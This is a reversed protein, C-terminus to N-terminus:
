ADFNGCLVGRSNLLVEVSQEQVLLETSIKLYHVASICLQYDKILKSDYSSFCPLSDFCHLPEKKTELIRWIVCFTM